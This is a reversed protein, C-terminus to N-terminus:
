PNMGRSQLAWEAKLDEMENQLAHVHEKFTDTTKITKDMCVLAGLESMRILGDLESQGAQLQAKIKESKEFLRDLRALFTARDTETFTKTM